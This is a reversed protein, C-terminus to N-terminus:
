APPGPDLLRGTEDVGVKRFGLRRLKQASFVEEKMGTDVGTERRMRTDRRIRDPVNAENHDDMIVRPSHGADIKRVRVIRRDPGEGLAGMDDIYLRMLRKATPDPRGSKDRPRYKEINFCRQNADFTPVVVTKWTGDRLQWVDAFENGGPLYSKYAKRAKDRIPIVRQKDVMRVRRVRQRRGNMLVGEREARLAFDAVKGGEAAVEDWLRILVEKLTADRVADLDSRRKCASLRKRVVVRSPGDGSLEILGYATENHLQGSTKGPKNRTGHDPKHSVVMRDLFTKLQNRNFGTWPPPALSALRETADVNTGAARAFQQLLGQTTNAVVFADIAHHRHDDRQKSPTEGDKLERLMGELGWGRRLLATMRGPIVRVRVSSESKEDYLHALYSRATRSLYATENLQRDLFGSEEDYREMADPKFRWKKNPLLKDARSLIDDYNYGPPNHGFAEYPSKDRKTQNSGAVCVVKNSMSNDLTRGFPLIHDIQTQSSVVMEFSLNAGTYPCVLAQPSGQEEWLRLKQLTSATPAIEASELCETFRMNREGGERQTREYERRQRANSKLDRALEVVIEHPKGYRAIIRNVVRRIQNLGIHVTPNGIRGYRAVEGDIEPDIEPNAGVVDRELAQGYYPLRDHAEGDRFDSHHPYEADQVADSYVRGMELHSLLKGIAEESLNGYGSPLVVNAVASAQDDDLGWGEVARKGVTEPEETELLFKVIDNREDLPLRLWRSGFLEQAKQGREKKAMLRSATEDGKVTKRGGRALNFTAGPPLGLGKIPKELNIDKGSRLRELVRSREQSNLSRESEFGVQLRLNNVEHLIRFEQVVPLARPARKKGSELQCWGPDVPKLPRQFFVVQKLSDWHEPDLSHHSDQAQRIADFEAEYMARDPYLGSEPRARVLRSKKRRRALFEGLTRAGSEEIRGRLQDIQGRTKKAEDEDEGGAKRNSKFGRRQDLHFLVRGLEHPKLTCDLAKARLEYPDLSAALDKRAQDERPMLGFEILKDLLEARRRLYRDRLRRQGRPIRRKVANSSGDRPNRGDSFIRVGMDLVGCPYEKADLSVAAWGISNTGVDLGLRYKVANAERM